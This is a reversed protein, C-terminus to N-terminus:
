AKAEKAIADSFVTMAASSLQRQVYEMDDVPTDSSVIKLLLVNLADSVTMDDVDPFKNWNIRFSIAEVYKGLPNGDQSESVQEALTHSM